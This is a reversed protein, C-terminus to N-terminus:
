DLWNEVRRRPILYVKRHGKEKYGMSENMKISIRNEIHIETELKKLSPYDKELKLLMALKLYKGLGKGRYKKSLGTLHQYGINLRNKNIGLTTLGVLKEEKNYLLCKFEFIGRRALSEENDKFETKELKYNESDPNGPIEKILLTFLECYSSILKDPLIEYFKLSYDLYQSSYFDFKDKLEEKQLGSINLEYFKRYDQPKVELKSGILDNKGNESKFNLYQSRDDCDLFCALIKRVLEEDLDSNLLRNYFVVQRKELDEKHIVEFDISGAPKNNKLVLFTNGDNNLWLLFSSRFEDLPKETLKVGEIERCKKVYNYIRHWYDNSDNEKEIKEIKYLIPM